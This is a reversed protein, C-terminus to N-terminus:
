EVALATLSILRQCQVLSAAQSSLQVNASEIPYTLSLSGCLLSVQKCSRSLGGKFMLM